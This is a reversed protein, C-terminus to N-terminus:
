ICATCKSHLYLKLGPWPSLGQRLGRARERRAHSGLLWDQSGKWFGLPWGRRAGLRRPCFLVTQGAGSGSIGDPGPAGLHWTQPVECAESFVRSSPRHSLLAGSGVGATRTSERLEKLRHAQSKCVRLGQRRSGVPAAAPDPTHRASCLGRARLKHVTCDLLKM